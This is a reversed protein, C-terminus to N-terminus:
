IVQIAETNTVRLPKGDLFGSRKGYEASLIGDMNEQVGYGLHPTM